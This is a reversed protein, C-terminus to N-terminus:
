INRAYQLIGLIENNHEVTSVEETKAWMGVQGNLKM